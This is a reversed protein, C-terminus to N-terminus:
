AKGPQGDTAQSTTVAVLQSTSAEAAAEAAKQRDKCDSMINHAQQQSAGKLLTMGFYRKPKYYAQPPLHMISAGLAFRISDNKPLEYLDTISNFWVEWQADGIPLRSPFWALFLGFYRKVKTFVMNM